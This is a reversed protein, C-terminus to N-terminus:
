GSFSHETCADVSADISALPEIMKADIAEQLLAVGEARRALVFHNRFAKSLESHPDSAALDYVISSAGDLEVAPYEVRHLM